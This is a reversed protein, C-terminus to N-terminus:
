ILYNLFEKRPLYCAGLIELHKTYVQCDILKYSGKTILHYLALKSANSIKTFMSEGCFVDNGMDVGYLGAVIKNNDWVEISKAYGKKHLKIYAEIMQETIWTGEQNTRKIKSCNKIVCEFDQNETIVLKTNKIFKITSKSLRFNIPFLVFRPDPSWWLLPQEKEFWPFIGSRYALILREISLDGGIALLGDKTASSVNPFEIDKTLIHM